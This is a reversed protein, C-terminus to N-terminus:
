ACLKHVYSFRMKRGRNQSVMNINLPFLRGNGMMNGYHLEMRM